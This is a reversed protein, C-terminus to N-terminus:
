FAINFTIKMVNENIKIISIIPVIAKAIEPAISPIRLFISIKPMFM